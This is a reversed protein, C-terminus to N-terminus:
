VRVLVKTGRPLIRNVSRSQVFVDYNGHNGPDVKAYEGQPLGILDRAQPGGYVKPRTRGVKKEQVLVEKNPQVKEPKMLQYFAIGPVYDKGTKAEVFPRIIDETVVQYERFSASLDQLLRKANAPVHSQVKSFFTKTSRKGATRDQYYNNMADQTEAFTERTGEDTQEWEKINDEPIGFATTARKNGKPVQFTITYSDDLRRMLNAFNFKNYRRSKNEDGDTVCLILRSTYDDKPIRELEDVAAGVADLLPTMGKCTYNGFNLHPISEPTAHTFRPSFVLSGDWAFSEGGFTLFSIYNEQGKPVYRFSDFLGNAANITAQRITNMSDSSDLLLYIFNKLIKKKNLRAM